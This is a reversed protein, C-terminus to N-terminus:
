RTKIRVQIDSAYRVEFMTDVSGYLVKDSASLDIENDSLGEGLKKAREIEYCSTKDITSQTIEDDSYGNTSGVKNYCRLSTLNIVGDLKSIEKEIDGLYIDEGMFHRRVDMYERVLSIVRSIVESTDYAKDVFVNIDFALNIVRGSRIEVFDNVCKYEKLYEKINEAVVESLQPM